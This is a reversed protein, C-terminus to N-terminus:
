NTSRNALPDKVQGDPVVKVYHRGLDPKTSYKGARFAEVCDPHIGWQYLRSTGIKGAKIFCDNVSLNHRIANRWSLSTTRYFPYKEMIYNYISNISMHGDSSSLLAKIILAMYTLPPKGKQKEQLTLGTQTAPAPPPASTFTPVDDTSSPPPTAAPGAAKPPGVLMMRPTQQAGPVRVVTIKRILGQDTKVTDVSQVVVTSPIRITPATPEGTEPDTETVNSVKLIKNNKCVPQLPIVSNRPGSIDVPDRNEKCDVEDEEDIEVQVLEVDEYSTRLAKREDAVTDIQRSNSKGNLPVHLDKCFADPDAFYMAITVDNLRAALTDM